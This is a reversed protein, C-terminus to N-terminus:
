ELYLIQFSPLPAPNEDHRVRIVAAEREAPTRPWVTVLSGLPAITALPVTVQSSSTVERGDPGRVLQAEDKVEAISPAPASYSDGRGGGGTHARISVAHPFFFSQPWSM